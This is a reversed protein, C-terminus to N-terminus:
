NIVAHGCSLGFKITPEPCVSGMPGRQLWAAGSGVPRRRQAVAASLSHGLEKRCCSRDCGTSKNFGTTHVATTLTVTSSRQGREGPGACERWRHPLRRPPALVESGHPSYAPQTHGRRSYKRDDDGEVETAVVDEVIRRTESDRVPVQSPTPASAVFHAACSPAKAAHEDLRPRTIGQGLSRSWRASTRTSALM